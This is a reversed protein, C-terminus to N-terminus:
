NEVDTEEDDKIIAAKSNMKAQVRTIVASFKNTTVAPIRSLSDANLHEKGKKYIVELDFEAFKWQLRVLSTTDKMKLVGRLPM